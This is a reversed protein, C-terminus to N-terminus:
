KTCAFVSRDLNDFDVLRHTRDCKPGRDDRNLKCGCISQRKNPEEWTFKYPKFDTGKHSGDCWPQSQSAGCTCYYYTKGQEMQVKYSGRKPVKPLQSPNLDARDTVYPLEDKTSFPRSTVFAIQKQAFVQRKLILSLTNKALM